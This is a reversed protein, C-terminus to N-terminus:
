RRYKFEIKQYLMAFCLDLPVFAKLCIALDPLM